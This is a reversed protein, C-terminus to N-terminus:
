EQSSTAPRNPWGSEDVDHIPDALLLDRMDDFRQLVPDQFPIRTAPSTPRPPDPPPQPDVVILQEALLKQAFDEVAQHINEPPDDFREVTLEAVKRLAFGRALLDWIAAGVKDASYYCGSSLNIMVAEGDIIESVIDPRNM